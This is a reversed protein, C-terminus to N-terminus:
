SDPQLRHLPLSQRLPGGPNGGADTAADQEIFSRVRSDNGAHLNRVARRRM